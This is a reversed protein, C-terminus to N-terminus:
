PLLSKLIDTFKTFLGRIPTKDLSGLLKDEDQLQRAHKLLGVSTAFAPNEIDDILGSIGTPIGIRVPMNLTRKASETIGITQAGGGCLVLGAPTLGAFGSKRLEQGVAQFIENLRPRVIGEVLTKYSVSKLDEELNLSGLDVDDEKNKITSLYLKIKEASDLSIRLGIALDATVNKAGVPLVASYSLAGEVFVAIDCTGGGIDVLIVGLEKETDSLVADSSALGSYVTGSIDCGVESVCKTLNKLATTTGTVIHTQVELRVGTMGVPDKVGDQGDVTYSRPIVHVIEASTPLTIARAAETVRSVDSSTIEGHPESVAVVGQSNQSAIHSGGISVWCKAVNFGAMREAAEVSDVICSVAEDINVIQGKRIGKSTTTAAGIVHLKADDDRIQAMLTTVKSSGVDIASILKSKAM